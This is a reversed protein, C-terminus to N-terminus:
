LCDIEYVKTRSTSTLVRGELYSTTSVKMFELRYSFGDKLDSIPRENDEESWVEAVIKFEEDFLDYLNCKRVRKNATFGSGFQSYKDIWEIRGHISFMTPPSKMKLVDKVGLYDPTIKCEGGVNIIYHCTSNSGFYRAPTIGGRVDSLGTFEVFSSHFLGEQFKHFSMNQLDIRKYILNSRDKKKTVANNYDEEMVRILNNENEKSSVIIEFYKNNNQSTIIDSVSVISGSIKNM